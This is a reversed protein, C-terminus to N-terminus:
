TGKFIKFGGKVQRQFVGRPDYKKSIKELFEVNTKGYSGIPDQSSDAYNSYKFRHLLGMKKAVEDVRRGLDRATKEVLSNSATNDWLCSLLMVIEATTLHIKEKKTSVRPFPRSTSVPVSFSRSIASLHVFHGVPLRGFSNGDEPKTGLSNGGNLEGYKTTVTPLPEFAISWTIGGPIDFSSLTDNLEVFIESM